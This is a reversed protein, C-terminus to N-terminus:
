QFHELLHMLEDLDLNKGFEGQLKKSAFTGLWEGWWYKRLYQISYSFEVETDCVNMALSIIDKDLSKNKSQNTPLFNQLKLFFSGNSQKTYVINEFILNGHSVKAHKMRDLLKTIGNGIYDLTEDDLKTNQFLEELTGDTIEQIRYYFKQKKDNGMPIMIHGQDYINVGINNEIQITHTGKEVIMDMQQKTTKSQILFKGKFQQLLTYKPFKTEFISQMNM